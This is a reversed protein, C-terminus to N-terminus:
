PLGYESRIQQCLLTEMGIGGFTAVSRTLILSTAAEASGCPPLVACEVALAGFFNIEMQRRIDSDEIEKIAGFLAYGTNNVVVDIQGFAALAAETGTKIKNLEITATGYRAEHASDM